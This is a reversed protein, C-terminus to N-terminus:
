EEELIKRALRPIDLGERMSVKQLLRHAEPEDLGYGEQLFRKAERILEEEKPSRRFRAQRRALEQEYLLRVQSAFERASSPMMLCLPGEPGLSVSGPTRELVALLAEGSLSSFLHIASMDSLKGGCLVLGGGRQRVARIISAGDSFAGGLPLGSLILVRSLSERTQESVFGLFISLM